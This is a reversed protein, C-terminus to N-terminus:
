VGFGRSQTDFRTDTRKNWAYSYAFGIGILLTAIFMLGMVFIYSSGMAEPDFFPYVYKGTFAQVIYAFVTYCVPYILLIFVGKPRIRKGETFGLFMVPVFISTVTHLWINQLTFLEPVFGLMPVLVLWYVICTVSIYCSVMLGFIPNAKPLKKLLKSFVIYYLWLVAVINSQTTFYFPAPLLELDYRMPTEFFISKVLIATTICAVVFCVAAICLRKQSHKKM